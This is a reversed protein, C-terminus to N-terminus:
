SELSGSHYNRKKSPRPRDYEESEPLRKKGLVSIMPGQWFERTLETM